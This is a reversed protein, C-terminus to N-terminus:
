SQNVENFEDVHLHNIFRKFSFHRWGRLFFNLSFHFSFWIRLALLVTSYKFKLTISGVLKLQWKLKGKRMTILKHTLMLFLSYPQVFWFKVNPVRTNPTINVEMQVVRDPDTCRDSIDNNTIQITTYISITNM